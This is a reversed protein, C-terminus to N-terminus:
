KLARYSFKQGGVSAEYMFGGKAKTFIALGDTYDRKAQTDGAGSTAGGATSATAHAGATIAVASAHAGLEFDGSTFHDFTTADAMFIIQAYAQGGAQLGITLQTMKARGVLKGERFVWGTGRAGGVGLGGKGVTPFIAVGYSDEFFRRLQAAAEFEKLAGQVQLQVTRGPIGEAARHLNAVSNGAALLSSGSALLLSLVLLSRFSRTM